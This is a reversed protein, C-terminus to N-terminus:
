TNFSLFRLFKSTKECFISSKVIKKMPKRQVSPFSAFVARGPGSLGQRCLYPMDPNIEGLHATFDLSSERINKPNNATMKPPGSPYKTQGKGEPQKYTKCGFSFIASGMKM